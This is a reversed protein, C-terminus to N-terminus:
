FYKKLFQLSSKSPVALQYNLNNKCLVTQYLQVIRFSLDIMPVDTSIAFSYAVALLIFYKFFICFFAKDILAPANTLKIRAVMVFSHSSSAKRTMGCRVVCFKGHFNNEIVGQRKVASVRPIVLPEYM